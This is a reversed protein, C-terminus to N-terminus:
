CAALAESPGMLQSDVPLARLAPGGKKPTRSPFIRPSSGLEPVVASAMLGPQTWGLATGEASGM